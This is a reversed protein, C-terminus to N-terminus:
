NTREIYKVQKPIIPFEKDRDNPIFHYIYRDPLTEKKIILIGQTEKGNFIVIAKTSFVGVNNLQSNITKNHEWQLSYPCKSSINYYFIEYNDPPSNYTKNNDITYQYYGVGILIFSCIGLVIWKTARNSKQSMKDLKYIFFGIILILLLIRILMNWITM